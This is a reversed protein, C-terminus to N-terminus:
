AGKSYGVVLWRSQDASYIATIFDTKLAPTAALAPVNDTFAFAGATGTALTLAQSTAASNYFRLTIQQNDLPNLPAAITRSSASSLNFRQGLAANLTVTSADTLTVNKNPTLDRSTSTPSVTLTAGFNNRYTNSSFKTVAAYDTLTAPVAASLYLKGGVMQNITYDTGSITIQKGLIWKEVYNGGNTALAINSGATTSVTIGLEREIIENSQNLTLANRIENDEITNEASADVRMAPNGSGGCAILNNRKVTSKYSSTVDIGIQRAATITNTEVESYSNNWLLIGNALFSNPLVEYVGAGTGTINVAIGALANEYSTAFRVSDVNFRIIYLTAPTAGLGSPLAGGNGNDNKRVLVTQGTQLNHTPLYVVDTTTNVGADDFTNFQADAGTIINRSIKLRTQQGGYARQAVIGNWGSRAMRGNLINDIIEIEDSGDTGANPEIDIVAVFSASPPPSVDIINRSIHIRTGGVTGFNQTSLGIATNDTIFVNEARFGLDGFGGVYGAFGHTKDFKNRQIYGNTINGIFVASSESEFAQTGGYRNVSFNPNGVFGIDTVSINENGGAAPNFDAAGSNLIFRVCHLSETLKTKGQGDGYINTNSEAIIQPTDQAMISSTYTGQKLYLNLGNTLRVTQAIQGVFGIVTSSKGAVAAITNVLKGSTTADSWLKSSIESPYEAGTFTIDNPAFGSFRAIEGKPNKLGIGQFQISCGANKVIKARGAFDLILNPPVILASNCNVNSKITIDADAAGITMASVLSAYSAVRVTSNIQSFASINLFMVAFVLLIIKKM